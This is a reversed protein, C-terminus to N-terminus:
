QVGVKVLVSPKPGSGEYRERACAIKMALRRFIIKNTPLIDSSGKPLGALGFGFCLVLSGAGATRARPHMGPDTKLQGPYKIPRNRLWRVSQSIM